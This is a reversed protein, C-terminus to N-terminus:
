KVKRVVEVIRTLSSHVRMSHKEVVAFGHDRLYDSVDIWSPHAFCMYKGRKLVMSSCEIFKRLLEELPTKKTSAARGYPPDTAIADVCEHRFGLRRADGLVVGISKVSYYETNVASGRVMFEDIDVGVCECGILGAEVLIGGVGCFPDLVVGGRPARALNVFLRSTYADLSSPHFVPRRRPRREQFSGRNVERLVRGIIARNGTVICVIVEDPNRVDVKACGCVRKLITAGMSKEVQYKSLGAGYTKVRILRCVFSKGKLFSWDVSDVAAVIDSLAVGEVAALEECILKTMSLRTAIVDVDLNRVELRLVQDLVDVVKYEIGETELTAVFEARPLSEHEGSLLAFLRKWIM